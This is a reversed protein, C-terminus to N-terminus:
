NESIKVNQMAPCLNWFEACIIAMSYYSKIMQACNWRWASSIRTYQCTQNKKLIKFFYYSLTHKLQNTEVYKITNICCTLPNCNMNSSCWLKIYPFHSTHLSWSQRLILFFFFIEFEVRAYSTAGSCKKRWMESCLIIRSKFRIMLM